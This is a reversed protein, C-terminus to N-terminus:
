AALLGIFDYHRASVEADTGRSSQIALVVKAAADMEAKSMWTRDDSM